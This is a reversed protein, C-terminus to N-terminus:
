RLIKEAWTSCFLLFSQVLLLFIPTCAAVFKNLEFQSPLAALLAQHSTINTPSWTMKRGIATLSLYFYSLPLCAYIQVTYNFKM